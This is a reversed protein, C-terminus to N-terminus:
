IHSLLFQREFDLFIKQGRNKRQKRTKPKRQTISFVKILNKKHQLSLAGYSYSSVETSDQSQWAEGL